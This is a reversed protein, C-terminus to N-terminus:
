MAPLWSHSEVGSEGDESGKIRIAAVLLVNYSLLGASRLMVSEMISTGNPWLVRGCPCYYRGLHFCLGSGDFDITRPFDRFTSVKGKPKQLEM